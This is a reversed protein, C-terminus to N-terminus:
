LTAIKRVAIMFGNSSKEPITASGSFWSVGAFYVRGSLATTM